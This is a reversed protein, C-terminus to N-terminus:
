NEVEWAKLRLQVKIVSYGGGVSKSISANDPLSRWASRGPQPDCRDRGPRDRRLMLSGKEGLKAPIARGPIARGWIRGALAGVSPYDTQIRDETGM